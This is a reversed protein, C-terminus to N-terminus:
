GAMRALVGAVGVVAAAGAAALAVRGSRSMGAAAEEPATAALRADLRSVFLELEATRADLGKQAEAIRDLSAEIPERSRAALMLVQLNRHMVRQSAALSELARRLDANGRAPSPPAALPLEGGDPAIAVVELEGARAALGADLELVFAHAGDGVGHKALDPRPQDALVSQLVAEGDRLVVALRAEPEAPSWAWGHIRGDSISEVYGQVRPTVAVEAVASM